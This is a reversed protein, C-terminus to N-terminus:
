KKVLLGNSVIIDGALSTSFHTYGNDDVKYNPNSIRNYQNTAKDYAYFVLNDKDMGTLDFKAAIRVEQGWSGTQDFHLVSTSNNFYKDFFNEVREVQSGTVYGSVKTDQIIASPNNITVRVQVAGNAITDHQFTLGALQSWASGQITVEGTGKSQAVNKGDSKAKTALDKIDSSTQTIPSTTSTGGTTYNIGSSGGSSGSDSSGGPNVIPPQPTPNPIYHLYDSHSWKVPNTAVEDVELACVIFYYYGTKGAYSSLDTRITTGTGTDYVRGKAISEDEDPDQNKQTDNRFLEWVYVVTGDVRDWVAYGTLDPSGDGVAEWHPHDPSSLGIPAASASIPMGVFIGLVLVVALWLSMINSKTRNSM